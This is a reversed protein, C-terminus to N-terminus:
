KTWTNKASINFRIVCLTLSLFPCERFISFYQRKDLLELIIDINRSKELSCVLALYKLPVRVNQHPPGGRTNASPPPEDMNSGLGSLAAAGPMSGHTTVLNGGGGNQQNTRGISETSHQQQQQQQQQSPREQMLEKMLEKRRRPSPFTNSLVGGRNPGSSNNYNSPGSPGVFHGADYAKQPSDNRTKNRIKNMSKTSGSGAGHLSLSAAGPNTSSSSHHQISSPIAQVISTSGLAQQQQIQHSNTPIAHSGANGQPIGLSPPQSSSSTPITPLPGSSYPPM